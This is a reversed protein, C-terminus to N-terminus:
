RYDHSMTFRNGKQVERLKKIPARDNLERSRGRLVGGFTVPIIEYLGKQLEDL